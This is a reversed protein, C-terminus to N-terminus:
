RRRKASARKLGPLELAGRDWMTKIQVLHEVWQDPQWLESETPAQHRQMAELVDDSYVGSLVDLARGRAPLMKDGAEYKGASRTGTLLETLPVGSAEAIELALGRTIVYDTRRLIKSLTSQSIGMQQSVAIQDPNRDYERQLRARVCDM